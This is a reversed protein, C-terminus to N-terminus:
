GFSLWKVPYNEDFKSGGGVIRREGSSRSYGIRGASVHESGVEIAMKVMHHIPVSPQANELTHGGEGGM